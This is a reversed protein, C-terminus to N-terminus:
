QIFKIYLMTYNKKFTPLLVYASPSASEECPARHWVQDWSGLIVVQALWGPTGANYLNLTYLTNNQYM